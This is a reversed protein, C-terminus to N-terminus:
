RMSRHLHSQFHQTMKHSLPTLRYPVAIRQYYRYSSLMNESLGHGEGGKWRGSRYCDAEGSMASPPLFSKLFRAHLHRRYAEENMVHSSSKYLGDEEEDNENEDSLPFSYCTELVHLHLMRVDTFRLEEQGPMPEILVAIEEGLSKSLKQQQHSTSPFSSSSSSNRLSTTESSSSRTASSSSSSSTHFIRRLASRCANSLWTKVVAVDCRIFYLSPHILVTLHIMPSDSAPSGVLPYFIRETVHYVVEPFLCMDM